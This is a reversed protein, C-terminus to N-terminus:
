VTRVQGDPKERVLQSEYIARVEEIDSIQDPSKDKRWRAIRPFRLAYGSKHRKSEQIRDFAIELVVSPEVVHVPGHTSITTEEFLKTTEEIEADTLGSYAKGINVLADDKRVAFTLDSLVNRRKGHGWQAATVVCDLTGLAKKYKLWTRGRRGPTYISQPDKLVLGENARARSAEFAAELEGATEISRQFGPVITAGAGDCAEVMRTLRELLPVELMTEGELWILDFAFYRVPTGQILKPTLKRRGIRPQLRAFPLVHEDWAVIEGDLIVPPLGACAKLVEPFRPGVDDLTRSYIKGRTGDWHIQARIGDYKDDAIVVPGLQALIREPDEEPQALMMGIPHFVRVEVDELRDERARIATEGIDSLLMNAERVAKLRRDFAKAIASEVLGERLGIRLEGTLIKALYRAEGADLRRILDVLLETKENSGGTAAIESLATGLEALAIGESVRNELWPAVGEGLDGREHVRAEIEDRPAGSVSAVAEVIRAWGIGVTREDYQPFVRGSLFVAAWPLEDDSLGRLFDAVIREKALKGGIAAVEDAMTVFERFM